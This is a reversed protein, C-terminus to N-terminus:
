ASSVRVVSKWQLWKSRLVYPLSLSHLEGVFGIFYHASNPKGGIVGLSQPLMFCQQLSFVSSLTKIVAHLDSFHSYNLTWVYPHMQRHIFCWSYIAIHYINMRVYVWRNGVYMEWWGVCFVNTLALWGAACWARNFSNCLCAMLSPHIWHEWVTPM